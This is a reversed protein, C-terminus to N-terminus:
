NHVKNLFINMLNRKWGWFKTRKVPSNSFLKNFSEEDINSLEDATKGFVEKMPFFSRDDTFFKRKNFPCVDQCIDCGFIWGSLNIYPPIDNRNEITQYSICLDADVKYANYIAGTPCADVCVRCSECLDDVPKDYDLEKNILIESLFFFSGADSDIINSHKGTWGIGSKVAWAKEMVPGDDVYFTTNIDDGLNEIENCIAKLKKKLVKHYDFKGWAYRSIKPKTEDHNFPTDYIFALSIISKVDKLILDPDERKEYNREIWHMDANRGEEVWNKLHNVEETLKEYKAFGAKYFGEKLCIEKIKKSLTSKM